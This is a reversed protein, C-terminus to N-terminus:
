LMRGKTALFAVDSGELRAFDFVNWGTRHELTFVDAIVKDKMLRIRLETEPM